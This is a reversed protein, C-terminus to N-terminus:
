PGKPTRIRAHTWRAGGDADFLPLPGLAFRLQVDRRRIKVGDGGCEAGGSWSM